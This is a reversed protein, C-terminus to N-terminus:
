LRSRTEVVQDEQGGSRSSNWRVSVTCLNPDSEDCVIKGCANADAEGGNLNNQINKLWQKLDNKVLTDSSAADSDSCIFSDKAYASRVLMRGPNAPDPQMTARMADLMSNTLFVATSQELAGQTNRLASAQMSAIGLLGFALVFVSVLVEILSSGTQRPLTRFPSPTHTM